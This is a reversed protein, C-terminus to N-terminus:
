ERTFPCSASYTLPSNEERSGDREHKNMEKRNYGRESVGFMNDDRASGTLQAIILGPCFAYPAVPTRKGGAKRTRRHINM